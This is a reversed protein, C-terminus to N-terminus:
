LAMTVIEEPGIHWKGFHGVKYGAKHMLETITTRDAFGHDSMYGPYSAPHLSTMFGTRSPCCTIGTVYFSEFRTGETALQDLEPTRIDPHGYCGLDGIGLDDALIFVINPPGETRPSATAQSLGANALLLMSLVTLFLRNRM